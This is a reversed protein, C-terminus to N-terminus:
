HQSHNLSHSLFCTLKDAGHIALPNIPSHALLPLLTQLHLITTLNWLYTISKVCHSVGVLDVPNERNRILTVGLQDRLGGILLYLGIIVLDVMTLVMIAMFIHRDRVAQLSFYCMLYNFVEYVSCEGDKQQTKPPQSHVMDQHSEHRHHWQNSFFWSKCPLEGVATIMSTFM